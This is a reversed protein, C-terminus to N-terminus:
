RALPKTWQGWASMQRTALRIQHHVKALHLSMTGGIASTPPRQPYAARRNKVCSGAGMRAKRSAVEAPWRARNISGVPTSDPTSNGTVDFYIANSEEPSLQSKPQLTLRGITHFPAQAENWEVSANEIWFSADHRNGWYTMRDLDLFQVGFDFTGMKGDETLHRILEDQLGKPNSRQLPRAPNDPSPTASYKVVDIPGHRFPVTSWYRLQQYPKITQRAQLEALALTRLVRLKDEFTLSWLVAAQNSATLLKMTALFAAADNIPLTTANQLSFDQRSPNADADRTLGVSFSLSRVDPKFDSNINPDANAFRVVAPYVGPRAFIGRALRTALVPDRDISVDFVEFRARACVGKAHTGRCLPRHQQTAANTQMLLSIKVIEEIDSRERTLSREADSGTVGFWRTLVLM